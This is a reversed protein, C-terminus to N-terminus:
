SLSNVLNLIHCATLAATETRLRHTGLSVPMFGYRKAVVIEEDSFGGEPGVLVCCNKRAETAHFLSVKEDSSVAIFRSEEHISKILNLFKSEPNIIPLRMRLSQKMASIAVKRLREINVRSRESYQCIPFSVEDIGIETAKEMFWELRDTNKVPALAIHIRFDKCVEREEEKELDILCAKPDARRIRGHFLKGKGDTIFIKEGEQMRLVRICHRSEDESLVNHKKIDPQFFLQM